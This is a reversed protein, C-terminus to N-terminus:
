LWRVVVRMSIPMAMKKRIEVGFRPL